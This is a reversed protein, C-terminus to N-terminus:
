CPLQVVFKTGENTTLVTLEGGHREVISKAIPLSLGSKPMFEGGRFPSFDNVLEEETRSKSSNFIEIIAASDMRLTRLRLEGETGISQLSYTVLNLMAQEFRVPHLKLKRDLLLQTSCSVLSPLNVLSLTKQLIDNVDVTELEGENVQSPEVLLSLDMLMTKLRIISDTTNKILVPYNETIQNWDMRRMAEQIQKDKRGQGVLLTVLQQSRGMYDSLRMVQEQLYQVPGHIEQAVTDALQALNVVTAVSHGTSSAAENQAEIQKELSVKAEELEQNKLLLEQNKQELEKQSSELSNVISEALEPKLVRGPDNDGSFMQQQDDEAWSINMRNARWDVGAFGEGIFSPVAEFASKLYSTTFPFEEASIPIDFSISKASKEIDGIPPAPSVFYSIFRDPQAFIDQSKQMMRLVSDLVGWSRLHYCNHGLYSAFSESEIGPIDVSHSLQEAKELFQEMKESELWYSPDRLFEEPIEVGRYLPELDVGSTSLLQIASNTIKCSFLM